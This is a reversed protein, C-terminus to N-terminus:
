VTVSRGEAASREIADLLRHRTVALDFDAEATGTASWADALRAYAQAVNRPPGPPTGEPVLTYEDPVPLEAAAERGQAGFLRNPGMSLSGASTLMLAGERGYIELRGGSAGVPVSAIHMTVEGGSVLRGAVSIADPSDVTVPRGADTDQWETVRTAVRATVEEFEGLISCMLDIGHGGQITLPNAGNVRQGQWLRGAGREYSAASVLSLSATLVEGIYGDAVLDRAYRVTPDSRGQLGVATRLGRERALAAMAEAEALNAGLPWECFVPKGARLGAMVLDHHWPVRVSVVVLDVEPHAVMDDISHFALPVSFASASARATDEHATCVAVVEFDPLARLAPIHANAGWGSGGPTVTAGVIGVRIKDAM